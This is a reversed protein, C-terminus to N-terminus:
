IAKIEHLVNNTKRVADASAAFKEAEEKSLDIKVISLLESVRPDKVERLIDALERQIDGTIRGLKFGAM